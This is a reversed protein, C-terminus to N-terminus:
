FAFYIGIHFSGPTPDIKRRTLKYGYDVRVPGLPTMLALGVGTSLRIDSIQFDSIEPWVYGGDVFYTGVFLWFLPIRVEANM